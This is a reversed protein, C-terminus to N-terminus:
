WGTCLPACLFTWENQCSLKIEGIMVGAMFASMTAKSKYDDDCVLSWESVISSSQGVSFQLTNCNDRRGAPCRNTLNSEANRCQFEVPFSVFAYQFVSPPNLKIIKIKYKQRGHSVQLMHLAVYCNILCLFICYKYQQKGLEGISEFIADISM